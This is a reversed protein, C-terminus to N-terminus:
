QTTEAQAISKLYGRGRLANRVATIGLDMRTKITGLPTDLQEAIARQSLGDLM